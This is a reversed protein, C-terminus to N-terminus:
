PTAAGSARIRLANGVVLLSSLSMGLAAAWPPLVALAALPVAIANYAIAWSLNQNITRRLRRAVDIAVPVGNLSPSLLLIDAQQRAPASADAVAFSVDARAMAPADNIGDGVMAVPEGADQLAAIALMKKDPRLEAQWRTVACRAAVDAVVRARDGSMITTTIGNAHLAAVIRPAEPRVRDSFEYRAVLRGDRALWTEKGGGDTWTLADFVQAGLAASLYSRSGLHVASGRDSGCAGQGAVSNLETLRLNTDTSRLARALPHQSAEALAAALARAQAPATADFPTCASIELEGFTLTGTKDFVFQRVRALAELAGPTLVAVGAELLTAHAAAVAAPRALALACPCAAVLVAITAQLWQAPDHWAWGFATLIALLLVGLVFWRAIVGGSDTAPPRAAAARAVMAALQGAFSQENIAAVRITLPSELNVSGALVAAGPGRAHPLSEGSVIAEDVSSAGDVIVGDAAIVEGARVWLLDDVGLRLTPITELREGDADSVLRQVADPVLTALSELRGAARVRARLELYRSALLFTVFMVVSDFYVVPVNHVTNWASGCFALGIALSVPVDMNLARHRLARWASVFFPVASYFLVPLTLVLAAWRLFRQEGSDADAHFYLALSIMMVQMGFIAAVGFHRLLGRAEVESAARRADASFPRAKFGLAAFLGLLPALATEAPDWALRARATALNVEIARVGPQQGFRREILWACAACNMGSVVLDIEHRGDARRAYRELLLPDDYVALSADVDASPRPSLADRVRYYDELGFGVIAAAAAECGPCCMPERQGALVFGFRAGTLVAEGCHFCRTGAPWAHAGAPSTLLASNM